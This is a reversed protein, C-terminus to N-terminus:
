ELWQQLWAACESAAAVPWEIKVVADGRRAEIRIDVPAATIAVPV